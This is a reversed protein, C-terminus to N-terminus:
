LLTTAIKFAAGKGSALKFAFVFIFWFHFIYSVGRHTQIQVELIHKHKYKRHLSIYHSSIHHFSIYHSSILCSREHIYLFIAWGIESYRLSWQRVKGVVDLHQPFNFTFFLLRIKKLCKPSRCLQHCERCYNHQWQPISVKNSSFFM